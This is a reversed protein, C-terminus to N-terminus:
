ASVARRLTSGVIALAVCALALVSGAFLVPWPHITIFARENSIILGLSVQSASNGFGLFSLSAAALIVAPLRVFALSLITPFGVRGVHGILIRAASAGYSRAALVYEAHKDSLAMARGLRGYVVWQEISLVLVMIAIGGGTAGLIAIGLLLGPFIQFIDMVRGILSDLRGGAYAGAAGVLWGICATILVVVFGIAFSTRLGLGVLVSLERGLHDTGLISDSGAGFLSPGEFSRTPDVSTAISSATLPVLLAYLLLVALVAVMFLAVRDRLVAHLLANGKRREGGTGPLQELEDAVLTHATV